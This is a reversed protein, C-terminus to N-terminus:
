PSTAPIHLPPSLSILLLDLSIFPLYRPPSPSTVPLRLPPLPSTFPLHLPSRTYPAARPYLDRCAARGGRSRQLPEGRPRHVDPRLAATRAGAGGGGRGADPQVRARAAAAAAAAHPHWRHGAGLAGSSARRRGHRRHPQREAPARAACLTATRCRARHRRRRRHCQRSPAARRAVPMRSPETRHRRPHPYHLERAQAAGQLPGLAASRLGRPRLSGAM